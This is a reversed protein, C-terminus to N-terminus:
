DEAAPLDLIVRLGGADARGLSVAGDCLDVVDRVIALGLGTGPKSEDLRKGREFIHPWEEEAIGPGDDEIRLELRPLNEDDQYQKARIIVKSKAWKCANDLLNGLMETLDQKEGSFVLDAELETSIEVGKDGYIQKMARVLEEVAPELNSRVGIVGKGGAARARTLHHGIHRRMAQLQADYLAHDPGTIQADVENQMVSIPTKLAHALNGAHTRARAVVDENQDLLANMESVLPMIETPYDQALRQARGSRVDALGVRVRRLPRLGFTVQAVIVLLLGAGLAALSLFVTRDFRAIDAKIEATDGAVMYRFLLDSDPLTIDQEIGRLAQGDPGAMEFFRTAFAPSSFDPTLETDWLSRSAFPDQGQVSVQWYLGSYPESFRQDGLARTFRVEGDVTLESSGVMSDHLITLRDDFNNTVYSGFATTLLWGSM